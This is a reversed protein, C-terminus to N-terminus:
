PLSLQLVDAPQIFFRLVGGGPQPHGRFSMGIVAGPQFRIGSRGEGDLFVASLRSMHPEHGICLLRADLAYQGLLHLINGLSCDEGLISTEEIPSACAVATATIDATQRARVLPSTLLHDLPTLLPALVRIAQHHQQAGQETLPRQWDRDYFQPSDAVAHRMLFLEM